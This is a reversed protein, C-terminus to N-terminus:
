DESQKEKNLFGIKRNILREQIFENSKEKGKFKLKTRIMTFVKILKKEERDIGYGSLKEKLFKLHLFHLEKGSKTM